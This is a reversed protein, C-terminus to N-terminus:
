QLAIAEDAGYVVVLDSGYSSYAAAFEATVGAGLREALARARDADAESSYYVVSSNQVGSAANGVFGVQGLANNRLMEAVQAARGTIGSGNLVTVTAQPDVEPVAPEPEEAPPQPAPQEPKPQTQQPTEQTTEQRDTVGAINQVTAAGVFKLWLIGALSLTVTLILVTLLWKLFVKPYPEARHAGVRGGKVGAVPVRDFRDERPSDGATQAAAGSEESRRRAPTSNETQTETM